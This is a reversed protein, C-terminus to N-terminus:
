FSVSLGPETSSFDVSLVLEINPNVSKLCTFAQRYKPLYERIWKDTPM